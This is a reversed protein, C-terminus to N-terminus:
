GSGARVRSYLRGAIGLNAATAEVFGTLMDHSM